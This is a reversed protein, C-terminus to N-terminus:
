SVLLRSRITGTAAANASPATRVIAWGSLAAVERQSSASRLRKRRRRLWVLVRSAGETRNAWGNGHPVTHIAPKRSM